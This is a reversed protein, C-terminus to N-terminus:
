LRLLTLPFYTSQLIRDGGTVGFVSDQGFLNVLREVLSSCPEEPYQASGSLLSSLFLQVENPINIGVETLQSTKPPLSM